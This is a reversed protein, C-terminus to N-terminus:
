WMYVYFFENKKDKKCFAVCIVRLIKKETNWFHKYLINPQTARAGHTDRWKAAEKEEKHKNEEVEKEVEKEEKESQLFTCLFYWYILIFYIWLFVLLFLIARVSLCCFFIDRPLNWHSKFNRYRTQTHSRGVSLSGLSLQLFVRSM